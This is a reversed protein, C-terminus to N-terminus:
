ISQHCCNRSLRDPVRYESQPINQGVETALPAHAPSVASSLMKASPAIVCSTLNYRPADIAPQFSNGFGRKPGRPWRRPEITLLGGFGAAYCAFGHSGALSFWLKELGYTATATSIRQSRRRSHRDRGAQADEGIRPSQRSRRCPPPLLRAPALPRPPALSPPRNQAPNPSRRPASNCPTATANSLQCDEYERIKQRARCRCTVLTSLFFVAHRMRSRPYRMCQRAPRCLVLLGVGVELVSPVQFHEADVQALFSAVVLGDIAAVTGEDGAPERPAAALHLPWGPSADM